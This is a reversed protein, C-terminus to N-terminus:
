SPEWVRSPSQNSVAAPYLEDDVFSRTFTEVVCEFCYNHGCPLPSLDETVFRDECILCPTRSLTDKETAADAEVNDATEYSEGDQSDEDTWLM